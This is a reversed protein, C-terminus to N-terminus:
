APARAANARSSSGVRSRDETCTPMVVTPMRVPTYLPAALCGVRRLDVGHLSERTSRWHGPARHVLASVADGHDVFWEALDQLHREIGGRQPAYYKGVHLVRM